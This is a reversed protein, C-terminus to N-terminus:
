TMNYGCFPSRKTVMSETVDRWRIYGIPFSFEGICNACHQNGPSVLKLALIFIYKWYFIRFCNKTVFLVRFNNRNSILLFSMATKLFLNITGNIIIKPVDNGTCLIARQIYTFNQPTTGKRSESWAVYRHWKFARFCYDNRSFGSLCACLCVENQQKTKKQLCMLFVVTFWPM